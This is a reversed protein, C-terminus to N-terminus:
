FLIISIEPFLILFQIFTNLVNATKTDTKIIKNKEDKKIKDIKDKLGM